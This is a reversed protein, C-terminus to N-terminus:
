KDGYIINVEEVDQKATRLRIHVTNEDYAYAFNGKPRHYVAHFNM